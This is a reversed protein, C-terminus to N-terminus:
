QQISLLNWFCDTRTSLQHAKNIHFSKKLHTWCSCLYISLYISLHHCARRCLSLNSLHPFWINSESSFSTTAFVIYIQLCRSYVRLGIWSLGKRVQEHISLLFFRERFDTVCMRCHHFKACNYRVYLLDLFCIDRSVGKSNLMKEGFIAVKTIDLFVLISQLKM